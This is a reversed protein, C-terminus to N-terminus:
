TPEGRSPPQSTLPISIDKAAALASDIIRNWPLALLLLFYTSAHFFINMTFYIGIHM